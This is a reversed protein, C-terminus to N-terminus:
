QWTRFWTTTTATKDLYVTEVDITIFQDAPYRKDPKFSIHGIGASNTNEIMRLKDQRGDPWNITIVVSAGAIPERRQNQVIVSITQNEDGTLLYEKPFAQVKLILQEDTLGVSKDPELLSVDGIRTNFYATGLDSVYVRKGSELNPRWELRGYQFYQVFRNNQVELDSIPYGLFPADAFRDYFELFAYCVRYNSPAIKRCGPGRTPIAPKEGPSYLLEGLPVQVMKKGDPYDVLDFRAKQFYQTIDGNVPDVIEETIPLGFIAAPEEAMFYMELFIGKVWHGTEEFYLETPAQALGSGATFVLLIASLVTFIVRRITIRM